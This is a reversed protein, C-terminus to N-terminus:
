LTRPEGSRETQLSNRATDGDADPWLKDALDMVGSGSGNCVLLVKLLDLPKRQPKVGSTYPVGDITLSFGGLATIRIQREPMEM